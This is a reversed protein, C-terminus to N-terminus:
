PRRQRVRKSGVREIVFNSFGISLIESLVFTKAGRLVQNSCLSTGFWRRAGRRQCRLGGQAFVSNMYQNHPTMNLDAYLRTILQLVAHM